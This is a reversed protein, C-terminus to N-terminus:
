RYRIKEEPAPEYFQETGQTWGGDRYMQTKSILREGKLSRVTRIVPQGQADRDEAIMRGGRFTMIGQVYFGASTFYHYEVAEKEESFRIIMEGGFDGNNMSHLMRVVEGNLTRDYRVIDTRRAKAGPDSLDGKWTVGLFPRLEELKPHLPLDEEAVVFGPAYLPLLLAMLLRLVVSRVDRAMYPEQAGPQFASHGTTRPVKMTAEIEPRHIDHHARLITM